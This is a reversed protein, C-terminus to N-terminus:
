QQCVVVRQTSYRNAGELTLIYIGPSLSTKLEVQNYGSLSQLEQQQLIRGTLDHVKLILKGESLTTFGINTVSVFPNPFVMLNQGEKSITQVQTGVMDGAANGVRGLFWQSSSDTTTNNAFFVDGFNNVQTLLGSNNASNDFSRNWQVFGSDPSLQSFSFESHYPSIASPTKTTGLYVNDYIDVQVKAENVLFLSDVTSWLVQGTANAIKYVGAYQFIDTDDAFPGSILVDGLYDLLFSNVTNSHGKKSNCMTSWILTGTTDFKDVVWQTLGFTDTDTAAVFINSGADVLVKIFNDNAPLSSVHSNFGPLENGSNKDYRHIIVQPLLSDYVGVLLNGFPDFNISGVGNNYDNHLPTSWIIHGSNDCKFIKSVSNLQGLMYFSSAGDYLVALPFSKSGTTTDGIFNDGLLNGNADYNYIHTLVARKNVFAVVTVGGTNDPFLGVPIDSTASPVTNNYVRNWKLNGVGDYRNVLVNGYTNFYVFGAAFLNDYRDLATVLVQQNYTSSGYSQHWILQPSAAFLLVNNIACVLLLTYKKNLHGKTKM